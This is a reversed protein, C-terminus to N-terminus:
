RTDNGYREMILFLIMIYTFDISWLQNWFGGFHLFFGVGFVITLAILYFKM